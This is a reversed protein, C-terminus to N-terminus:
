KRISLLAYAHAGSSDKERRTAPQWPYPISDLYGRHLTKGNEAQSGGSPLLRSLLKLGNRPSSMGILDRRTHLQRM